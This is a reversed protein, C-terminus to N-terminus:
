RALHAFVAVVQEYVQRKFPVVLSPLQALPKWAWEDFEAKHGAPPPDIRIETEEGEFRFAFWKQKQGRYKGGWTIGIRDSPLDYKIWRPAEAVLSLSEMGAEEFIERRAAELPSEGKDIGGQPMQWLQSSGTMESDREVKRHGTWVLGEANLVMIGVCPRYPLDTPKTKAM